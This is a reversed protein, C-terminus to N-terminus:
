STQTHNGCGQARRQTSAGAALGVCLVTYFYQVSSPRRALACRRQMSLSATLSVSLTPESRTGVVFFRFRFHPPASLVVEWCERRTPPSALRDHVLRHMGGRIGACFPRASIHCYISPHHVRRPLSGWPAQPVCGRETLSQVPVGLLAQVTDGAFHNIALYVVYWIVITQSARRARREAIVLRADASSFGPATLAHPARVMIITKWGWPVNWPYWIKQLWTRRKREFSVAGSKGAGEYTPVGITPAPMLGPPPMEAEVEECTSVDDTSSDEGEGRQQEGGQGQGDAAAAAALVSRRALAAGQTAAGRRFLQAGGGM